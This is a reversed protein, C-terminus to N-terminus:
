IPALARWNPTPTGPAPQLLNVTTEVPQLKPSVGVCALWFRYDIGDRAGRGARIQFEKFIDRAEAPTVAHDKVQIAERRKGDDDEFFVEVDEWGEPQFGVFAPNLLWEPLRYLVYANQFAYGKGGILGGLYKPHLMSDRPEAM